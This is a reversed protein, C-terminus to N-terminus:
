TRLFPATKKHAIDGLNHLLCHSQGLNASNTEQFRGHSIGMGRRTGRRRRARPAPAAEALPDCAELTARWCSVQMWGTSALLARAAKAGRARLSQGM